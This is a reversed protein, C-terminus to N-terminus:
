NDYIKRTRSGIKEIRYGTRYETGNKNSLLQRIAKLERQAKGDDFSVKHQMIELGHQKSDLEKVLSHDLMFELPIKKGSNMAELLPAFKESSKKNVIYEGGEANIWKGGKSHPQGEIWGGEGFTYASEIAKVKANKWLAFLAAIAAPAAILGVVGLKTTLDKLIGSISSAMNIAQVITEIQQQQKVFEKQQQLAVERQAQLQELEQKKLTVNSAYGAAFLETEIELARQTEEVMQDYRDVIRDISDVQADAIDKFAGAILDGTRYIDTVLKELAGEDGHVLKYLLGFKYEDPIQLDDPILKLTNNLADIDDKIKSDILDLMNKQDLDLLFNQYKEDQTQRLNYYKERILLIDNATRGEAQAIKVDFELQKDLIAKEFELTNIAVAMEEDFGESILKLKEETLDRQSKILDIYLQKQERLFSITRTKDGGEATLIGEGSEKAKGLAAQLFDIQRNTEKLNDNNKEIANASANWQTTLPPITRQSQSIQKNAAELSAKVVILRDLENDMFTDIPTKALKARWELNDKYYEEWKERAIEVKAAVRDIAADVAAGAMGKNLLDLVWIAADGLDLLLKITASIKGDGKDLSLIFENWTNKLAKTKNVLSEMQINVMKDIADSTNDIEDRYKILDGSSEILVALASTARKPVLKFINDLNVGAENIRVLGNVFDDFTKPQGLVEFLKSGKDALEAMINRMSTGALSGAIQANSLKGLAATVDEFTWGLQAAIPAVYKIAERTNSLSLASTNLGTALTETVKATEAVDLNFGRVISAALEASTALDEGTAISLKVIAETAKGIEVATFGLKSLILELEAVEKPTYIKGATLAVQTLREMEDATAGSIAEVQKMAKNFETITTIVSKIGGLLAFAGVFRTVLYISNNLLANKLRLQTNFGKTAATASNIAKSLKALTAANKEVIGQQKYLEKNLAATEKTFKSKNITGDKLQKEYNKLSNSIQDIRNKANTIAEASQIVEKRFNMVQQTVQAANRFYITFDINNAAM